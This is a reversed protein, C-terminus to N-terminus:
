LLERLQAVLRDVEEDGFMGYPLEKQLEVLAILSEIDEKTLTM